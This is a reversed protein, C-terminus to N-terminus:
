GPLAYTNPVIYKGYEDHISEDRLETQKNTVYKEMESEFANKFSEDTTM